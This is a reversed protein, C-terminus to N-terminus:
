ADKSQLFILHARGYKRSDYVKYKLDKIKELEKLDRQEEDTEIIIIGDEKLLDNENIIKVAYASINEKYPPDIYIIDFKINKAKCDKLVQKYDRNEVNANESLKTKSLNQNIIDIAKKSIDCLYVRRAGRSLM